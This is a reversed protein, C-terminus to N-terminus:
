PRLWPPFQVWSCKYAKPDRADGELPRPKITKLKKLAAVAIEYSVTQIEDPENAEVTAIQRLAEMAEELRFETSM